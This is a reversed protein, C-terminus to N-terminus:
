RSWAGISPVLPDGLETAFQVAFQPPKRLDYKQFSYYLAALLPYVTTAFVVVLAPGGIGLPGM